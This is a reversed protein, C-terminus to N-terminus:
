PAYTGRLVKALEALVAGTDLKALVTESYLNPSSNPPQDVTNYRPRSNPALSVSPFQQSLKDTSTFFDCAEELLLKECVSMFAYEWLDIFGQPQPTFKQLRILVYGRCRSPRFLSEVLVSQSEM